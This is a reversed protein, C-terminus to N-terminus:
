LRERAPLDPPLADFHADRHVLTAGHISAAAAILADALPLRSSALSGLEFARVAVAEDVAVLTGLSAYRLATSRAEDRSAGLSLAARAFEAVSLACLLVEAERDALLEQVRVAGPEDHWHALLASTDLLCASM